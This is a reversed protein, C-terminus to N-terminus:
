GTGPASLVGEPLCSKRQVRMIRGVFGVLRRILHAAWGKVRAEHHWNARVLQALTEADHADTKNRRLATATRGGVSAAPM